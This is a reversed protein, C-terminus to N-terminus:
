TIRNLSELFWGYGIREQELRLCKGLRNDRLDDFLMREDTTLRHLDKREPDSETVWHVRHVLLTQRDMLFSQVDPLYSRLQDLIAFGHTDIDGWYRVDCRRLWDASEISEFGYGATFIVMSGLVPPFSLFNIENETMFVRGVNTALAAFSRHDLTIDQGAASGPLLALADDLMRFRIRRPRDRLGYRVCFGGAGTAQADVVAAPLVLDLMESLLGINAEIFKTHIGPVDIQRLYINPRPDRQMRAVVDLLLSWNEALELVQFPRRALLPLLAPFRETTLAVLDSFCQAERTKGILQLADQLSDMWVEDPVNNKGIVRHNVDRMVIRFHKGRQLESIWTRVEDFSTTLNTSSPGKLVLRRPFLSEKNVFSALILGREWLRGVQAKLDTM